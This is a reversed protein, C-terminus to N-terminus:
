LPVTKTYFHLQVSVTGNHSDGLEEQVSYQTQDTSREFGRNLTCDVPLLCFKRLLDSTSHHQFKDM